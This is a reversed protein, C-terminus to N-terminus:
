GPKGDVRPRLLLPLYIALFIAFALSWLLGSLIIWFLYYSPLLSPGFVRLLVALNLFVFASVMPEAVDISRGSHGLAVRAMMGLTFVGIVGATLAHMAASPLFLGFKALAVLGSGVVVWLYGLHLVWQVPMKWVLPHHWGALRVAQVAAFAAYFLGSQVGELSILEAVTILGILLYSIWEVWARTVPQFGPIAAQTFFPLVRGAVLLILVLLLNLMLAQGAVATTALGLMQLHVLLNATAM